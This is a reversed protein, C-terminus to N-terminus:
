NKRKPELEAKQKGFKQKKKASETTLYPMVM